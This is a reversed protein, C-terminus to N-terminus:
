RVRLSVHVPQPICTAWTGTGDPVVVFTVPSGAIIVSRVVSTLAADTLIVTIEARSSIMIRSIM